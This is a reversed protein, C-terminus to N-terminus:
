TPPHHPPFPSLPLQRAHQPNGNPGENPTDNHTWDLGNPTTRQPAVVSHNPYGDLGAHSMVINEAHDM